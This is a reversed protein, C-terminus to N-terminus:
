RKPTGYGTARWSSKMTARRRRTAARRTWRSHRRSSRRARSPGTSGCTSSSSPPRRTSGWRWCATAWWGCPRRRGQSAAGRSLVASAGGGLHRGLLGAQARHGRVGARGRPKRAPGQPLGARGPAARRWRRLARGEAAPAAAHPGAPGEVRELKRVVERGSDPVDDLAIGLLKDRRQDEEKRRLGELNELSWRSTPSPTARTTM